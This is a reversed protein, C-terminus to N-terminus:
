PAAVFSLFREGLPTTTRTPSRDGLNAHILGAQKLDGWVREYFEPRGRLEPLVAELLHYWSTTRGVAFPTAAARRAADPDHAVKLTRIHWATFREVMELFLEREGADASAGLAVNLAANRLATRKEPDGTRVSAHVGRALADVFAVDNVLRDRTLRGAEELSAIREALDRLFDDRRRELPTRVLDVLEAVPAAGALSAAVKGVTIAVDVPGAQPPKTERVKCESKADGQGM